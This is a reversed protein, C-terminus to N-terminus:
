PSEVGLSCIQARPEGLTLLVDPGSYDTGPIGARVRLFAPSRLLGLSGRPAFPQSQSTPQIRAAPFPVPPNGTLDVALRTLTGDCNDIAFAQDGADNFRVETLGECLFAPPGDDRDPLVIPAAASAVRADPFGATLGDLLVTPQGPLYLAPDDLPRLDVAFLQRQSSSGLLAVQGSPDVAPPEFSPAAFGLPISAVVRRSLADIVDVFAETRANGAGTGAGIAGTLTVLVLERGGPTLHHVVGTPNFGTTFIVPTTASLRAHPTAGSTDWEFVLVTGPHFNSRGANELNSMAIFLHGAAVAKGATLRTLFSPLVPDCRPDAAIPNGTSDTPDPPFICGLTSIGTRLATQGPPPLLPWADLPFGAPTEVPIAMLEGDSADAVLVQEYDSTSVLLTDADAARIEGAVPFVPFPLDLVRMSAEGDDEGDMDSDSDPFDSLMTLVPREGGLSLMAIGPPQSVVAAARDPDGPLLTLGAPFTGPVPACAPDIERDEIVLGGGASGTGECAV